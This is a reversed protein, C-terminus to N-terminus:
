SAQKGVSIQLLKDPIVLAKFATQIEEATVANIRDVYSSLYDKPLDYFSIKLLMSAMSSNSGLSLPFSGTLYQKAAILEENSPGTKIFNSLSSRIM